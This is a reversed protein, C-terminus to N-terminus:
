TFYQNKNDPKFSIRIKVVSYRFIFLYLIERFYTRSLWTTGHPRVSLRFSLSSHRLWHCGDANRRVRRCFFGLRYYLIDRVGSVMLFFPLLKYECFTNSTVWHCVFASPVLLTCPWSYSDEGCVGVGNLSGLSLFGFCHPRLEKGAMRSAGSTPENNTYVNDTSNRCLIVQTTCQALTYAQVTCLVCAVCTM